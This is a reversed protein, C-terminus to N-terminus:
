TLHKNKRARGGIHMRITGVAETLVSEVKEDVGIGGTEGGL